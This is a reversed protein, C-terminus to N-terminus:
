DGSVEHHIHEAQITALQDDMIRVEADNVDDANWYASCKSHFNVKAKNLDDWESAVSFNGNVNQIVAYKSM